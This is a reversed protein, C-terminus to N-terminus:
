KSIMLFGPPAAGTGGSVSSRAAARWVVAGGPPEQRRAGNKGPSLLSPACRAGFTVSGHRALLVANHERVFPEVSRPVADTSPTAYPATPVPGVTLWVEPFVDAPFPVRALTMATLLPPHAHVVAGVDPRKDYVLLHLRFESSPKGSGSVVAGQDNVVVLDHVDIEAKPRGSPTILYLGDALRCSVNGDSAAILGGKALKRCAWVIEERMTAERSDLDM